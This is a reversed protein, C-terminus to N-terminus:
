AANRRKQAAILTEFAKALDKGVRDRDEIMRALQGRNKELNALAQRGSPKEEEMARTLKKQYDDKSREYNTAVAVFRFRAKDLETQYEKLRALLADRKKLRPDDEKKVDEHCGAVAALAAVGLFWKTM